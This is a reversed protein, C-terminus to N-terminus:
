RSKDSSGAGIANAIDNKRQQEPDILAILATSAPVLFAYDVWFGEGSSGDSYFGFGVRGSSFTADSGTWVLNGNVYFYMASGSTVVRLVNWANGINIFSSPTWNQLATAVGGSILWVSFYGDRTYSFTYATGPRGALTSGGARVILQNSCTECGNRWLRAQYDFNSFYEYYSSAAWSFPVGPTYYYGSGVTWTGSHPTWYGSTGTGNFQENFGQGSVTFTQPDSLPGYGNTNWTQIWWM